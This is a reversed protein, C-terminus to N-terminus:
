SSQAPQPRAKGNRQSGGGAGDDQPEHTQMEPTLTVGAMPMALILHRQIHQDFLMQIQPPLLKYQDSHKTSFHQELHADHNESPRPPYVPMGQLMFQDEREAHYRQENLEEAMAKDDELDLFRKAKALDEQPWMASQPGLIGLGVMVQLDALAMQRSKPRISEAEVVVDYNGRLDAGRFALIDFQNRKGVIKLIREDNAHQGLLSLLLRGVRALCRANRRVSPEKSRIGQEILTKYAEGSARGQQIGKEPGFTMAIEDMDQRLRVMENDLQPPLTPPELYTPPNVGSWKLCEILSDGMSSEELKNMAHELLKARATRKLYESYHSNDANYSRQPSIMNELNAQGWFDGPVLMDRFSVIPLEAEPMPNDGDFLVVDGGTVIMRGHPFERSATEYYESHLNGEESGTDGASGETLHGWASLGEEIDYDADSVYKGLDYNKDFWSLPRWTRIMARQLDDDTRCHRDVWLEHPPIIEVGIDGEYYLEDDGLEVEGTIEDVAVSPATFPKGGTANWYVKLAVHGFVKCWLQIEEYKLDMDLRDWYSTMVKAAVRSAQRDEIDSSNPRGVWVPAGSTALSVSREVQARMFNRVQRVHGLPNSRAALRWDRPNWRTYHYGLLYALNTDWRRQLDSRLHIQPRSFSEITRLAEQDRDSPTYTDKPRLRFRGSLQLEGRPM